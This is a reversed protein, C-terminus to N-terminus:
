FECRIGGTLAHAEYHSRLEGTYKVSLSLNNKRILTLGAGLVLGDRDIDRGDTVFTTTPSGDFAAVIRRDDLDFDHDWAVTAEPICLWTDKEFPYSFRLGLDSVLADTKREEVRLNVGDAGSEEYSDEDLFTYRLAAFPQLIWKKLDLNWGAEVYASYVDGDHDSQAMDALPGVEVARVNEYCQRGYSLTTDFYMRDTFYSGYLSGFYSEIDGQGLDNDMDIDANSQGYSIGALLGDQLLRDAGITVGTLDYDYGALGGQADQNAWHGFGDMWAAHRETQSYALATDSSEIHSRTSHM